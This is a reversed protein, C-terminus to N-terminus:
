RGARLRSAAQPVLGLRVVAMVAAPRLPESVARLRVAMAVGARLRVATAVGERLRVATAVAMVVRLRVAVVRLRTGVARRVM